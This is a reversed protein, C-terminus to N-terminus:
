EWVYIGWRRPGDAGRATQTLAPSLIVTECCGCEDANDRADPEAPEVVVSTPLLLPLTHHHASAHEYV